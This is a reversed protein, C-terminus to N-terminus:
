KELHHLVTSRDKGILSAIASTSFKDKTMEKILTTLMEVTSAKQNNPIASFRAKYKYKWLCELRSKETCMRIKSPNGNEIRRVVGYLANRSIGFERAITTATKTKWKSSKAEIYATYIATEDIKSM